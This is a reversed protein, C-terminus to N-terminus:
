SRKTKEIWQKVKEGLKANDRETKEMFATLVNRLKEKNYNRLLKGNIALSIIGSEESVVIVIADSSESASVAARHRTGLHQGLKEDTTLTPVFCGAAIIRKDRIICAGDHLPTNVVFINELLSASVLAELRTGTNVIEGLGTKQEIMILAGTRTLSLSDVAEVIYNIIQTREEKDMQLNKDFLSTRGIKELARRVEPQFIIVFSLLGITITNNLIWHLMTLNLAQSIPIIIFILIIGKLLQEARTEKILNYIKYFIYSVVIIDLVQNITISHIANILAEVLETLRNVSGVKPM